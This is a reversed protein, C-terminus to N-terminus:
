REFQSFIFFLDHFHRCRTSIELFKPASQSGTLLKLAEAGGGIGSTAGDGLFSSIM